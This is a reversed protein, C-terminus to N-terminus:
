PRQTDRGGYRPTSLTEGEGMFTFHFLPFMGRVRVLDELFIDGWEGNQKRSVWIDYGGEGDDRGSHFYLEEGDSSIHLEGIQYELSLKDGVYRWDKWEGESHEATFFKVGTYGERASCFWMVDDKVFVCGDLSLKDEEQLVVREPEGWSGESRDSCYIGTVGDKIQEEVPEGANPTFFFYLNEGDPTIFPSDEAGATNVPYPLPVPDGYELSHLKPPYPDKDPDM